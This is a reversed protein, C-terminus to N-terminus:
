FPIEDDLEERLDTQGKQRDSPVISRTRTRIEGEKSAEEGEQPAQGTGSVGPDNGGGWGEQRNGANDGSSGAPASGGYIERLHEGSPKQFIHGYSYPSCDANAEKTVNGKDDKEEPHSFAEMIAAEDFRELFEPVGIAASRQGTDRVMLVQCGRLTGEREELRKFAGLSDFKIPLLRKQWPRKIKGDKSEYPRLDIVSLFVVFTSRKFGGLDEEDCLPCSEWEGPCSEHVPQKGKVFKEHEYIQFDIKDDLIIVDAQEGKGIWFRWPANYRKARQEDLVARRRGEKETQEDLQSSSTAWSTDGDGKASSRQASQNKQSSQAIRSRISGTM